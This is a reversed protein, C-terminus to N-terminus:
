KEAARFAMHQSSVREGDALLAEVRFYYEDGAVLQPVGKIKWETAALRQTFIVDGARSLVYIDYHLNGPVETWHIVSGAKINAGGPPFIVDIAIAARHISRLQRNSEGDASVAPTVSDPQWDIEGNRSVLIILTVVLVAAAAWVPASVFRRKTDGRAMQKAKALVDGPIRQNGPSHELRELMGIRAMCFRCDVLHLELRNREAKELGDDFYEAIVQDEPCFPTEGDLETAQLGLLKTYQHDNMVLSKLKEVSLDDALHEKGGM